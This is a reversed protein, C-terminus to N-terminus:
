GAGEPQPPDLRQMVGRQRMAGARWVYVVTRGTQRSQYPYLVADPTRQGCRARATLDAAHRVYAAPLDIPLLSGLDIARMRDRLPTVSMPEQDNPLM